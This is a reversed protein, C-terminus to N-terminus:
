ISKKVKAPQTRLVELCIKFVYTLNSGSHLKIRHQWILVHSKFFKQPIPNDEFFGSQLSILLWNGCIYFIESNRFGPRLFKLRFTEKSHLEIGIEQYSLEANSCAFDVSILTSTFTIYVKLAYLNNM